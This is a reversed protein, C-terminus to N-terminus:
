VLFFDGCFYNSVKQVGRTCFTLSVFVCVPRCMLKTREVHLKGGLPPSTRSCCGQSCSKLHSTFQQTKECRMSAIFRISAIRCTFPCFRWSERTLNLMSFHVWACTERTQHLVCQLASRCAVPCYRTSERTQNLM